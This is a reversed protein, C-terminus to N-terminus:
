GAAHFAPEHSGRRAVPGHSVRTENARGRSIEGLERKGPSLAKEPCLAICGGCGHCMEPFTLVLTGMVSIAKFQCLDSCAGCLAANQNTM